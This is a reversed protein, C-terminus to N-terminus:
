RNKKLREAAKITDNVSKAAKNGRELAQDFSAAAAAAREDEAKKVGFYWWGAAIALIIVIGVLLTTIMGNSPKAM